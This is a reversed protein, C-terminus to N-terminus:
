FRYSLGLLGYHTAFDGELSVRSGGIHDDFEFEFESYRYELFFAFNHAFMVALGARVDLGLDIGTDDFEGCKYDSIFLSPGIGIYPQFKGNPYEESTFLPARLFVLASVPILTLDAKEGDLDPSPEFYSGELALGLFPISKFYYGVRYGFIFANDYDIKETVSTGDSSLTTNDDQTFGYGVYLDTFWEATAFKPTFVLLAFVMVTVTLKSIRM